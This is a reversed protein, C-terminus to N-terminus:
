SFETTEPNGNRDKNCNRSAKKPTVTKNLLERQIDGDLMNTIFVFLQNQHDELECNESLKCLCGCVKEVKQCKNVWANKLQEKRLRLDRESLAIKWM